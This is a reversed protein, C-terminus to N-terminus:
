TVIEAYRFNASIRLYDLFIIMMIVENQLSNLRNIVSDATFPEHFTTKM